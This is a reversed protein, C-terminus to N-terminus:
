VCGGDRCVDVMGVCRWLGRCVGGGDGVCVEM